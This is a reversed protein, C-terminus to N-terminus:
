KKLASIVNKIQLAANAVSDQGYGILVQRTHVRMKAFCGVPQSMYSDPLSNYMNPNQSDIHVDFVSNDDTAAYCSSHIPTM